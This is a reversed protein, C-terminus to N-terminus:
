KVFHTPPPVKITQHVCHWMRLCKMSRRKLGQSNYLDALTQEQSDSFAALANYKIKFGNIQEQMGAMRQELKSQEEQQKASTQSCSKAVVLADAIAREENPPYCASPPPSAEGNLLARNYDHLKAEPVKQVAELMAAQSLALTRVAQKLAAIDPDVQRVTAEGAAVQRDGAQQQNLNTQRADAHTELLQGQQQQRQEQKGQEKGVNVYHQRVVLLLGVAAVGYLCYQLWRNAKVFTWIAIPTV